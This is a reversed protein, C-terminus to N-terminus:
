ADKGRECSDLEKVCKAIKRRIEKVTHSPVTEGLIKRFRIRMAERKAAEVETTLSNDAM